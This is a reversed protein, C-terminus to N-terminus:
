WFQEYEKIVDPFKKSFDVDFTNKLYWDGKANPQAIQRIIEDRAALTTTAGFLQKSQWKDYDAKTLPVVQGPKSRNFLYLLMDRASAEADEFNATESKLGM